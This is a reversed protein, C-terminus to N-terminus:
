MNMFDTTFHGKWFNPFLPFFQCLGTTVTEKDGSKFIPIVKAIKLSNPFIGSKISNNFIECLPKSLSDAVFKVVNIYIDVMALPRM